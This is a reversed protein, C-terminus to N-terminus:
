AEPLYNILPEQYCLLSEYDKITASFKERLARMFEHLKNKGNLMVEFELDAVGFAKTIYVVNPNYRLFAILSKQKLDNLNHLTLFIKYHEYGLLGANIKARFAIIIGQKLMKKIRNKITNVTLELRKAIDVASMRADRALLRLIGLDISDYDVKKIEGLIAQSFDKTGFLYNHRLHYIKFAISVQIEKFYRGIKFRLDDYAKEFDGISKAWVVLTLDWRGDNCSIWGVYPLSKACHLIEKEQELTVNEYKILLRCYMYGLKAIDIAAYYGEIIGKEVLSKIRYNVVERSMGVKKAISSIPQRANTDLQYLIKRDKEDLRIEEM